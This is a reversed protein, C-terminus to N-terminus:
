FGIKASKCVDDCLWGPEFQPDILRITKKHALLEPFSGDVLGWLLHAPFKTFSKDSNVKKIHNFLELQTTLPSFSFRM